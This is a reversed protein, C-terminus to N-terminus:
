PTVKVVLSLLSLAGIRTAIDDIRAGLGNTLYGRTVGKAVNGYYWPGGSDGPEVTSPGYRFLLCYGSSDCYNIATVTGCRNGTTKGWYCIASGTVPNSASTVSREGGGSTYRIKNTITGNLSHWQLDGSAPAAQNQYPASLGGYTYTSNACHGATTVGRVGNSTVTFAATCLGIPNGGVIAAERSKPVPALEIDIADAAQLSVQKSILDFVATFDPSFFGPLLEYRVLIRGSYDDVVSDAAAVGPLAAVKQRAIAQASVLDTEPAIGTIDVETKIPLAAILDMTAKAPQGVFFIRAQSESGGTWHAVSFRMPDELRIRDVAAAFLEQGAFRDQADEFSIGLADGVMKLDTLEAESVSAQTFAVGATPGESRQAAAPSGISAASLLSVLIAGTCIRAVRSPRRVASQAFTVTRM